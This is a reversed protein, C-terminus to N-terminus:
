HLTPGLLRRLQTRADYLRKAVAGYSIGLESAIEQNKRGDLYLVMARRARATLKEIAWRLEDSSIREWAPLSVCDPSEVVDLALLPDAAGRERVRRRRCLDYYCNTMTSLLWTTCPWGEPLATAEPFTSTFRLFTEQVLDEADAQTGCLYQARGLLWARRTSVVELQSPM